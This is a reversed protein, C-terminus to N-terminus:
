DVLTIEGENGSGEGSKTVLISEVHAGHDEVPELVPTQDDINSEDVGNESHVGAFALSVYGMTEDMSEQLSMSQPSSSSQEATPSGRKNEVSHM